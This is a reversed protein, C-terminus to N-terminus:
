DVLYFVLGAKFNFGRTYHKYAAQSEYTNIFGHSYTPQFYIGVQQNFRFQVGTSLLLNCTFGSLAALSSFNATTVNKDADTNKQNVTYRTALMPQIGGSIFYVFRKGFTVHMQIPIGIFSYKNTYSFASDSIPSQYSYTEGFKDLHLGVDLLFHQALQEKYGMQFTWVQLGEENERAGIPKGFPAKNELLVRTSYNLGTGLYLMSTAPSFSNKNRSKKVAQNDIKGSEIQSFVTFGFFFFVFSLLFRMHKNKSLSVFPIFAVFKLLV